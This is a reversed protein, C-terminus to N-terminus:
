RVLSLGRPQPFQAFVIQWFEVAVEERCDHVPESRGFVEGCIQAQDIVGLGRRYRLADPVLDFGSEDLSSGVPLTGVDECFVPADFSSRTRSKLIAISSSFRRFDGKM